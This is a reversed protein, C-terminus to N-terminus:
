ATQLELHARARHHTYEAPRLLMVGFMGLLMAVHEGVLLVGIDDVVSAELLAIAAFTPVLMSASMEANARWGHGRYGIWGVMPATMTAAMGLLMLAPADTNLESWSSGVAGLAWGAPVGLVVMGLVMAVVMELYHRVFHRSSTSM